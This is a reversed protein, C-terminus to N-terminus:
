EIQRDLSPACLFFYIYLYIFIFRIESCPFAYVTSRINEPTIISLLGTQKNRKTKLDHSPPCIVDLMMLIKDAMATSTVKAMSFVNIVTKEQTLLFAAIFQALAMSKGFRRTAFIAIYSWLLSVGFRRLIAPKRSAYEKGYIQPVCAQAWLIHMEIQEDSRKFDTQDFRALCEFLSNLRQDGSFQQQLHAPRASRSEAGVLVDRALKAQRSRKLALKELRMLEPVLSQFRMAGRPPGRRRQRSFAPM